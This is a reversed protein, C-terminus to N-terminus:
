EDYEEFEDAGLPYSDPPLDWVEDHLTWDTCGWDLAPFARRWCDYSYRTAEQNEYEAEWGNWDPYRVDDWREEREAELWDDITHQNTCDRLEANCAQRIKHLACHVHPWPFVASKGDFDFQIGWNSAPRPDVCRPLLVGFFEGTRLRLGEKRLQHYLWPEMQAPLAPEGGLAVLV